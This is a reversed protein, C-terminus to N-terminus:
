RLDGCFDGCDKRDMKTKPVDINEALETVSAPALLPTLANLDPDGNKM